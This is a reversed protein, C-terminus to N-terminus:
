KGLEFAKLLISQMDCVTQCPMSVHKHMLDITNCLFVFDDDAMSNGLKLGIQITKYIAQWVAEVQSQRDQSIASRKSPSWCSGGKATCNSCVFNPGSVTELCGLCKFVLTPLGSYTSWNGECAECSCEFYYSSLNRNRTERDQDQFDPTYSDTLEEGASIPRVARLILVRGSNYHKTSPYCSHNILSLAPFLGAGVPKKLQLDLIEFPNYHLKIAHSLLAAGTTLFDERSPDVPEFSADIFFRGSLQLMKTIVFALQCQMFLLEFSHHEMNSSLHYVGHYSNSGYVGHEDCGLSEPRVHKTKKVVDFVRRLQSSSVNKLMKYALNKNTLELSIMTPLILCELWHEESLGEYRCKSSCYVIKTCSPCPLPTLCFRLCNSCYRSIEEMDISVSYAREVGIVEGTSIDRTAVLCRGKGPCHSVKVAKSLAPISPNPEIVKPIEKVVETFLDKLATPALMKERFSPSSSPLLHTQLGAAGGKKPSLTKEVQDAIQLGALCRERRTELKERLEEPYGCEFALEINELCKGYFNLEFLVASRNAYGMALAKSEGGPVGGGYKAPDIQPRAVLEDEQSNDSSAPAEKLVPHPAVLISQNYLKLATDLIKMKYYANGDKRLRDAEAQSKGATVLTPTLMAHAEKLDWICAFIEEFPKDSKCNRKLSAFREPKSKVASLMKRAMSLFNEESM